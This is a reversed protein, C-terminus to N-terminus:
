CGNKSHIRFHIRCFLYNSQMECHKSPMAGRLVLKWIAQEALTIHKKKRNRSCCFANRTTNQHVFFRGSNSRFPGVGASQKFSWGLSDTTLFGEIQISIKLWLDWTSDKIDTFIGPSTSYINKIYMCMDWKKLGMRRSACWKHWLHWFHLM